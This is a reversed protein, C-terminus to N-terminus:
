SPIAPCCGMCSIHHQFFGVAHMAARHGKNTLYARKLRAYAEADRKAAREEKAVKDALHGKLQELTGEQARATHQLHAVQGQLQQM